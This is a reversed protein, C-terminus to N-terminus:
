LKRFHNFEPLPRNGSCWRCILVPEITKLAHLFQRQGAISIKINECKAGKYVNEGNKGFSKNTGGMEGDPAVYKRKFRFDLLTSLHSDAVFVIDGGKGGDGGDPGGAAVYKERHFAVRGDGGKGAKVRIKAIDVFM